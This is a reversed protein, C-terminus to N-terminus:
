REYHDIIKDFNKSLVVTINEPLSAEHMFYTFLEPVEKKFTAAIEEIDPLNSNDFTVSFVNDGIDVNSHINNIFTNIVRNNETSKIQENKM